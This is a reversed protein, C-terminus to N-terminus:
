FNLSTNCLLKNQNPMYKLPTHILLNAPSNKPASHEISKQNRISINDLPKTTSTETPLLDALLLDEKKQNKEVKKM